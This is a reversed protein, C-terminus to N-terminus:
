DSMELRPDSKAREALQQDRDQVKLSKLERSSDLQMLYPHWRDNEGRRYYGSVAWGSAEPYVYVKGVKRNPALPDVIELTNIAVTSNLLLRSSEVVMVQQARIERGESNTIWKYSFTAVLLGIIIAFVVRGIRHNM